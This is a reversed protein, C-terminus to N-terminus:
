TCQVWKEGHMDESYYKSCYQCQSDAEDETSVVVSECGEDSSISSPMRTRKKRQTVPAKKPGSSHNAAKKKMYNLLKQKHPSGTIHAASERGSSNNTGSTSATPLMEPVPSIDAPLVFNNSNPQDIDLPHYEERQGEAIFDVEDFINSQLPFIGDEQLL